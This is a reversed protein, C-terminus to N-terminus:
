ILPDNPEIVGSDYNSRHERVNRINLRRTTILANLRKAISELRGIYGDARERPMIERQGARRLWYRAERASGRAISFFHLSERDSFRADGEVLNAGASDMSTVLQEGVTRQAVAPWRMVDRWVDDALEELERFFDLREM